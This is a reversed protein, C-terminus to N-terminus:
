EIKEMYAHRMMSWARKLNDSLTSMSGARQELHIANATDMDAIMMAHTLENPAAWHTQTDIIQLGAITLADLIVPLNVRHVDGGFAQYIAEIAKKQVTSDM